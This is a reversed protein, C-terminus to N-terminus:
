KKIYSYGIYSMGSLLISTMMTLKAFSMGFIDWDEFFSGDNQAKALELSEDTLGKSPDLCIQMTLDLAEQIKKAPV